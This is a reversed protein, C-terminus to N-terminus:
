RGCCGARGYSPGPRAPANILSGTALLNTERPKISGTGGACCSPVAAVNMKKPKPKVAARTASAPRAWSAPRAIGSQQQGWVLTRTVPRDSSKVSPKRFGNLLTSLLPADDRDVSAVRISPRPLSPLVPRQVRMPKRYSSRPVAPARYSSPVTTGRVPGRTIYLAPAPKGTTSPCCSAPPGALPGPQVPRARYAPRAFNGAQCCSPLGASVTTPAPRGGWACSGCTPVASGSCCGAFVGSAVFLMLFTAALLPLIMKKM